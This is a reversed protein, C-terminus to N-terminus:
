RSVRGESPSSKGPIDIWCKEKSLESMKKGQLDYEERRLPPVFVRINATGHIQLSFFFGHILTM